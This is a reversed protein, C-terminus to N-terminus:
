MFVPIKSESQEIKDIKTSNEERKIPPIEPVPDTPKDPEPKRPMPDPDPNTTHSKYTHIEERKIPPIEPVPDTPKDPEPKRPMPDPGPNATHFKESFAADSLLILLFLDCFARFNTFM